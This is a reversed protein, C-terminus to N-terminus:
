TQTNTQKQKKIVEKEYKLDRDGAGEMAMSEQM